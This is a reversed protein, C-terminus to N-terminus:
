FFRAFFIAQAKEILPTKRGANFMRLFEANNVVCCNFM